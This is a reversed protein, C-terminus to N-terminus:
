RRSSAVARVDSPAPTSAAFAAASLGVRLAEVAEEFAERAEDVGGALNLFGHILGPYCRLTAPTGSQQLKAAYAEGEDRLPDFGAIQIFAPPSGRLDDHLPSMRNDGRQARPAYHDICWDMSPRELFFGQAYRLISPSHMQNDVVPYCLLQFSPRVADGRTDLAVVTALNAGASDGGVALRQPDVGLAAAQEAIARLAAVSDDVAAPFRHEPALRYDVSLVQVPAAAALCRCVGDYSDLSGLVFGGGHYYVLTPAPASGSLTAPRYRRVRMPGTATDLQLDSSSVPQSPRPALMNGEGEFQRRAKDVSLESWPKKGGLTRLKLMLQVQPNLAQGDVVVPEGALRSLLSAPLRMATHAVLAELREVVRHVRM